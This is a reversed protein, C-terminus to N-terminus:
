RKIANLRVWEGKKNKFRWFRWGNVANKTIKKAAGTLTSFLKGKYFVQGDKRLSAKHINGKYDARLPTRNKFLGELPTKGNKGKVKNQRKKKAKKKVNKKSMSSRKTRMKERREEDVKIMGIDLNNGLNQSGMFRGGQLNGKPAFIRLVLSELEKKHEDHVTLYVSFNDWKHKHRDSKHQRIRGMLNTALGIYYLKKKKYLAYIGSKKRILEKIVSPYEELIDGSIEELHEIVLKKSKAM